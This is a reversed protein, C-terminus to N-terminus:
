KEKKFMTVVNLLIDHDLNSIEYKHEGGKTPKAYLYYGIVSVDSYRYVEENIIWYLEGNFRKLIMKPAKQPTIILVTESGNIKDISAKNMERMASGLKAQIIESQTENIVLRLMVNNTDIMTVLYNGNDRRDFAISSSHIKVGCFDYEICGKEEEYYPIPLTDDFTKPKIAEPNNIVVKWNMNPEGEMFYRFEIQEELSFPNTLKWQGFLLQNLDNFLFPDNKDVTTKCITTNIDTQIVELCLGEVPDEQTIFRYKNIDISRM